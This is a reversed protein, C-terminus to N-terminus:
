QKVKEFIELHNQVMVDYTNHSATEVCNNFLDHKGIFEIAELVGNEDFDPVVFGNYGDSILHLGSNVTNNTIVPLGQSLAENIVHGYIDEKSPFIFAEAVKYYDFLEDQSTFGMIHVNALHNVYAYRVLEDKQKGSGFILLHSKKPMNKWFKLLAMYNKREILQGCSVYIKEYPLDLKTKLAEKELNDPKRKLIQEKYITAYPYNYIKKPEAGYYVLYENSKEDPSMYFSAASIYKTKYRKKFNSEKHVIGGNIYLGFPIFHRKLYKIARLEPINSYGNLIVLDYSNRRLHKVVGNSFTNEDGFKIGHLFIAKFKFDKESYFAKERNRAKDREFIVTLDHHKAIENFLRVKYPAIHNFVILLKM